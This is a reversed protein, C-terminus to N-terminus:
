AAQAPPPPLQTDRCSVRLRTVAEKRLQCVRAETVGLRAGIERLTLDDGCSLDLVTRLRDPLVELATRFRLARQHEELEAEPHLAPSAVPLLSDGAGMSVRGTRTTRSRLVALEAPSIGLEAALEETEPQRGLRRTLKRETAALNAALGRETRTLPDAARLEDLMAGVACRLAYGDFLSPEGGKWNALAKALGLNGAGILEEVEIHAPLRRKLRFAAARVMACLSTLDRPQETTPATSVNM